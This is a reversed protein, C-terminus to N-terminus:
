RTGRRALRAVHADVLDAFDDDGDDDRWAVCPRKGDRSGRSSNKVLDLLAHAKAFARAERIEPDRWRPPEGSQNNLFAVDAVEAVTVPRYTPKEVRSDERIREVTRIGRADVALGDKQVVFAHHMTNDANFIGWLPAGTDRHLALALAYCRGRLYTGVNSHSGRLGETPARTVGALALAGIAGLVLAHPNM